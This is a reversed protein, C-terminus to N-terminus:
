NNVHKEDSIPIVIHLRFIGDVCNMVVYGNYKEVIYKISKVGFGHNRKDEKTTEPLGDKFSPTRNCTNEIHISLLGSKSSVDVSIMRKEKNTVLRTSEIANDLANGFMMAVDVLEMFNLAEGDAVCIFRIDEQECLLGKECFVVDLAENGTKVFSDYILVSDQLEKIGKQSINGMSSLISIQNKIDHCKINIIDMTQKSLEYQKAQRELLQELTVKEANARTSDWYGFQMFLMFVNCLLFPMKAIPNSGLQNENFWFQLTFIIAIGLVLLVIIAFKNLAIDKQGRIKKVFLFYALLYVTFYILFTVIVAPISMGDWHLLSIIIVRVNDTLNQITVAGLMCFIIDSFKHEFCFLFCFISIVFASMTLFGKVYHYILVPIFYGLTFYLVSGLIFRIVFQEKRQLNFFFLCEAAYLQFLYLILILNNSPLLFEM